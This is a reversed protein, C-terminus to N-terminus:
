EHLEIGGKQTGLAVNTHHEIYDVFSSAIRLAHHEIDNAFSSVVKQSSRLDIDGERLENAFSSVV